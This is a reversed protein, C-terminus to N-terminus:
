EPVASGVRPGQAGWPFGRQHKWFAKARQKEEKGPSHRGKFVDASHNNFCLPKMETEMSQARFQLEAKRLCFTLRKWPLSKLLGSLPLLLVFPGPIHKARSPPWPRCPQLAQLHRRGWSIRSKSSLILISSLAHLFGVRGGCWEEIQPQVKM